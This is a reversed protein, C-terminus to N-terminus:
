ATAVLEREKSKGIGEIPIVDPERRRDVEGLLEADVVGDNGLLV